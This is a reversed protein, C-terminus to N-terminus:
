KNLLQLASKWDKFRLNNKISKPCSILIIKIMLERWIYHNEIDTSKKKEIEEKDLGQEEMRVHTQKMIILKQEDVKSLMVICGNLTKNYLEIANGLALLSSLIKYSLAGGVFWCFYTLMENEM